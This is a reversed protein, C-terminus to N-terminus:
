RLLLEGLGLGVLRLPMLLVLLAVALLTQGLRAAPALASLAFEAVDVRDRRHQGVVRARAAEVLAGTPLVVLCGSWDFDEPDLYSLDPVPLGETLGLDLIM